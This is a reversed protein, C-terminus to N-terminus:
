VSSRWSKTPFIDNKNKKKSKQSTCKTCYNGPTKSWSVQCGADGNLASTSWPERASALGCLQKLTQHKQDNSTDNWNKKHWETAKSIAHRAPAGLKHVMHESMRQSLLLIFCVTKWKVLTKSLLCCCLQHAYCVKCCGFRWWASSPHFDTWQSYRFVMLIGFDLISLRTPNRDRWKQMSLKEFGFSNERRKVERLRSTHGCTENSWSLCSPCPSSLSNKFIFYSFPHLVVFYQKIFDLWCKSILHWKKTWVPLHIWHNWLFRLHCVVCVDRCSM